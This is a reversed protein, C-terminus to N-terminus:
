CEGARERDKRAGVVEVQDADVGHHPEQEPRQGRLAGGGATERRARASRGHRQEQSRRAPEPAEGAAEVRVPEIELAAAQEDAGGGGPRLRHHAKGALLQRGARREEDVSVLGPDVEQGIAVRGPGERLEVGTLHPSRSPARQRLAQRALERRQDHATVGTSPVFGRMSFSDVLDNYLRQNKPLETAPVQDEECVPQLEAGAVVPQSKAFAKADQDVCLEDAIADGIHTEAYVAGSLHSHLDAGKPMRKLFDRLPLPEARIREFAQATRETGSQMEAAVAWSVPAMLLLLVSAASAGQFWHVTCSGTRESM